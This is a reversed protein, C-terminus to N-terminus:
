ERVGQRERVNLGSSVSSPCSSAAAQQCERPGGRLGPAPWRYSSGTSHAGCLWSRRGPRASFGPSARLHPLRWQRAGCPARSTVSATLAECNRVTTGSRRFCACEHRVGLSMAMWGFLKERLTLNYDQFPYVHRQVSSSLCVVGACLYLTTESCQM